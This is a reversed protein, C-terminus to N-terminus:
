TLTANEQIQGYVQLNGTSTIRKAPYTAFVNTLASFTVSGTPTVTFNNTSADKFVTSANLCQMLLVTNSTATLIGRPPIFQSTYVATGNMIRLNTINGTMYNGTAPTYSSGITTSTSAIGYNTPDSGSVVAIGNRYLTGVGANRVYAVHNWTNVSLDRTSPDQLILTSGNYWSFEGPTLVSFAFNWGGTQGSNRTDIVYQKNQASTLYIWAEVTFNNSGFQVSSGPSYTLYGTTGDFQLSGTAPTNRITTEDYIGTILYHGNQYSEPPHLGKYATFPTLSSYSATSGVQIFSYSSTSSDQLYSTNSLNRMSLTSSSLAVLPQASPTFSTPYLASNQTLRLNTTYGVFNTLNNQGIVLLNDTGIRNALTTSGSLTQSVGNVYLSITNNNVSAAIHTWTNLSITQNGYCNGTGWYMSLNGGAIPGFSFYDASTSTTMDGVLNPLSNTPNQTLYIWSEITFTTLNTPILQTSTFLYNGLGGLYLSGGVPTLTNTVEDITGNVAFLNSTLRSVITAM